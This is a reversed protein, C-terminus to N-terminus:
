NEICIPRMMIDPRIARRRAAVAPTPAIRAMPASVEHALSSAGAGSGVVMVSVTVSVAAGGAVGAGGAAGGSTGVSFAGRMSGPGFGNEGETIAGGAGVAM